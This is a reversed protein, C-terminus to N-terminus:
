TKQNLIQDVDIGDRAMYERFDKIKDERNPDSQLAKMLAEVSTTDRVSAAPNLILRAADSPNDTALEGTERDILGINQNIKYGAGKAISNIFINRIMGKFNSRYDNAMYWSGWQPNQLFMFDTQVFGDDINGNIPAKFHVSIGTREIWGASFKKANFIENEPIGQHICWDYLRRTLEDKTIEAPNVALDLDGSTAVKGTSGLWKVPYGDEDKETTLDLGTLKELWKVTPMVDKKNIRQTLPEKTVDKFVNGGETLNKTIGKAFNAASFIGRNVLKVLGSPTNFIFGEGGPEGKTYQQLGRVQKELQAVLNNKLNNISNWIRLVKNLEAKHSVLYGQGDATQNNPQTLFQYQSRSINAPIELWDELSLTTQRTIVKNMYTQLANRAVNSMGQLFDDVGASDNLSDIVASILKTPKSISFSINLAPELIAVSGDTKLGQGSWPIPASNIDAFYQHVVVGGDKNRIKKGLDSNVDVTYAVTNPEFIYNGNVPSLKNGWLLDGWFFGTSGKSAYKLGNWINAIKSYLDERLKGSPKQRDYRIWDAPSKAMFKADFMYKDMISFKGNEDYGFILAPKGDWKITITEPNSIVYGLARAMEQASQVGNFISDEPHPTRISKKEELLTSLIFERARM